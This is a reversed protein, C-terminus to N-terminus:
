NMSNACLKFERSFKASVNKHFTAKVCICNEMTYRASHHEIQKRLVYSWGRERETLGIAETTAAIWSARPAPVLVCDYFCM